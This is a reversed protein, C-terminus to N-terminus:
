GGSIIPFMKSNHSMQFYTINEGKHGKYLSIWRRQRHHYTRPGGGNQRHRGSQATRERPCFYFRRLGVSRRTTSVHRNQSYKFYLFHDLPFILFSNQKLINIIYHVFMQRASTMALLSKRTSNRSTQSARFSERQVEKPLNAIFSLNLNQLTM